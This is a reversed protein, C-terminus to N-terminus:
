AGVREKFREADKVRLEGSVLKPLLTDRLASLTRSELDIRITREVLPRIVTGLCAVTDDAPCTTMAAQLHSRQIHGMTTAKFAAIRQFEELHVQVWEAFFWVPYRESTVKFLHQNLAGEGETWFKALLSGSWSFLFDGDNVVCKKPVYKSARDTNASIGNRLEAIKIVPLSDAPDSAPYKQLALGNLFDAIESLPKQLWGEPVEGHETEVLRAPFLAALHPPIGPDRGEVKARVPEFDVFWAKFLARAMAELTVSMRRNVEIKDDLTGLIHAIVRQEPLPPFPVRFQKLSSLPQGIGPTGVQSSFRMIEARGITSRFFYYYFKPESSRKELTIKMCSTSLFYRERNPPVLAVEGISGRHPFVLDGETVVCRPMSNAFEDPVFVWDGVLERGTSINSGRIIPVGDAVYVDSKMASGFPGIAVSGASQEALSGLAVDPFEGAM